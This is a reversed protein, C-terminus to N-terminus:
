HFEVLDRQEAFTISESWIGVRWNRRLRAYPVVHRGTNPDLVVVLDPDQYGAVVVLHGADGNRLTAIVPRDRDIEGRLEEYSLPQGHHRGSLGFVNSAISRIEDAGGARQCLLPYTCCFGRGGLERDYASLVQCGTVQRGTMYEGVMGVTAAWCPASTREGHFPVDLIETTDDDPVISATVLVLFLMMFKQM